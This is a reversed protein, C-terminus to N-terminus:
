LGQEKYAQKLEKSYYVDHKDFKAMQDATIKAKIKAPIGTVFSQDPIKMRETVVCGAAIICNDGIEAEDLITANNGVLTNHGIKQGHMVVGHGIIINDGIEMPTATHIVSNDEIDTGRGIKIPAFDGRIIVGPWIGCDEGIEVDGIIYATESVFTSEAIIPTKGNYSKIM